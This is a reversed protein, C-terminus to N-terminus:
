QQPREIKFCLELTFLHKDSDWTTFFTDDQQIEHSPIKFAITEYPEGAFLLYQYKADPVERKQEFASMIRYQPVLGEQIEPYHVEFTLTRRGTSPDTKKKVRYGPRGHKLSKVVAVKKAAIMPTAAKASGENRRELNM